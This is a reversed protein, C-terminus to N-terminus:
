WPTSPWYCTPRGSGIPRSAFGAHSLLSGAWSSLAVWLGTLCRGSLFTLAGIPIALSSSCEWHNSTARLHAKPAQAERHWFGFVLMGFFAALFGLNNVWGERHERLGRWHNKLLTGVGLGLNFLAVVYLFDGVPEKWDSLLTNYERGAARVTPPVVYELVYYLGAVFTVLAILRRRGTM